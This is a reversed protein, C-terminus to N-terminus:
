RLVRAGRLGSSVGGAGVWGTVMDALRLRGDEGHRRGILLFGGRLADIAAFVGADFDAVGGANAILLASVVDDEALVHGLAAQAELAAFVIVGPGEDFDGNGVLGALGGNEDGGLDDEDFFEGFLAEEAAADLVDFGGPGAVIELGGPVGIERNAAGWEEAYVSHEREETDETNFRKRKGPEAGGGIEEGRKGRRQAM